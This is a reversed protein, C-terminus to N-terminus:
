RTFGAATWRGAVTGLFPSLQVGTLSPSILAVVAPEDLPVMPVRRAAVSAAHEFLSARRPDTLAYSDALAIAHGYDRGSWGTVNDATQGFQTGLFDQPDPYDAGWRVIALDFNRSNVVQNYTSADLQRLNVTVDLVKSWASQLTRAVAYVVPDRPLVLTISPFRKGNPYHALALYGAASGMPRVSPSRLGFSSPLFGQSAFASRGVAKRATHDSWIAAFARRAYLRRFPLRKTNFALYDLALGPVRRAGLLNAPVSSGPQLGSVLDLKGSRYAALASAQNDYFRITVSKLLPKGAFYFPNRELFLARSHRWSRVVYPGFGAAHDTWSSGYRAPLRPDAVYSAPFALEALFHAAPRSLTIQLTSSDLARIGRAFRAVGRVRKVGHEILGLYLPATGAFGQTGLARDLAGVFYPATVRTGDAFRLNHRLHFTYLTGQRTITWNAAADPVVRARGDLRVLGGYVLSAVSISSPDSALAPDLTPLDSVGAIGWRLTGSLTHHAVPRAIQKQVESSCGVTLLSAVLLLPILRM